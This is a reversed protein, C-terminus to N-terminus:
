PPDLYLTATYARWEVIEIESGNLKLDVEIFASGRISSDEAGYFKTARANYKGDADKEVVWWGLSWLDTGLVERAGLLTDETYLFPADLRIKKEERIILDRLAKEISNLIEDSRITKPSMPADNGRKEPGNACSALVVGIVMIKAFERMQSFM